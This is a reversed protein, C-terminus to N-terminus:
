RCACSEVSMNPYVKLVVNDDKDYFLVSLSMLKDPVCCPAPVEPNIELANIFAQLIAHNSSGAKKMTKFECLGSCYYADYTKPTIIWDAWQLDAFDVHLSKRSCGQQIRNLDPEPTPESNDTKRCKRSKRGKGSRKRCRRKRKKKKNNRNQLITRRDQLSEIVIRGTKGNDHLETQDNDTIMPSNTVDNSEEGRGGGPIENGGADSSTTIGGRQSASRRSRSSSRKASTFNAFTKWIANSMPAATPPSVTASDNCYAILIPVLPISNDANGGESPARNHRHDGSNRKSRDTEMVVFFQPLDAIIEQEREPNTGGSRNDETNADRKKRLSSEERDFKVIMVHNSRRARSTVRELNKDSWTTAGSPLIRVLRGVRQFIQKPNRGDSESDTIRYVSATASWRVSMNGSGSRGGDLRLEASVVTETSPISTVNFAFVRMQERVTDAVEPSEANHPPTQSRGTSPHYPVILIPKGKDQSKNPTNGAVSFFSRITNGQSRSQLLMLSKDESYTRYLEMMFDPPHPLSRGGTVQHLPNDFSAREDGLSSSLDAEQSESVTRPSTMHHFGFMHRMTSRLLEEQDQQPPQEGKSKRRKGSKKKSKGGKRGRRSKRRKKDKGPRKSRLATHSSSDTAAVEADSGEVNVESSVIDSASDNRLSIGSNSARNGASKRTSKRGRRAEIAIAYIIVFVFLFMVIKM